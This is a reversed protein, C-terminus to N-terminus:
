QFLERWSIQRPNGRFRGFMLEAQPNENFGTATGSWNYQLWPSAQYEIRWSGPVLSPQAWLAGAPLVGQQLPAAGGAFSLAPNSLSALQAAALVSCSDQQNVLFRSGDWYESRLVLPLPEEEPGAGNQLLLRGYRIDTLGLLRASCNGAAVCDGSSAVNVDANAIAVADNDIVQAALALQSFPGDPAPTSARNLQLSNTQYLLSGNLWSPSVTGSLRATLPQGNNNHEAQLLVTGSAFAGTYNQTPQGQLNRATLNFAVGFPQGQYSFSACAPTVAANSLQFDAPYFRGTASSNAGPVPDTMGLYTFSNTSFRFVGVESVSQTLSTQAQLQRNHNYSTTIVSGSAGTVPALLQHSLGINNQSFNPTPPNACLDSSGAQWARASINLTFTDGARRFPGCSADAAACEGSTQICLGAPRRIFQDAGNMVLGADNNAASGTYRANLQVLGADAYNVSFNAQGQANFSLLQSQRDAESLGAEVSNVTVPWSVPRGNNDPTIYSSWFAVNRSVNAFAPVCQQSANDKRVASLLINSDPRNAIGDPVTFVLGSDAFSVSCAAASLAGGGSRCLTQSLPRTSPISGSVGVTTSGVMTRALSATTSGGAFSIVNGGLWNVNASNVPSLTATVQQTVLESCSPNKCARITFTEPKCTLAQGSYDFEFHDIQEGVPLSRLACISLNDLEHNNNSGGTSGTFSLFFNEPVPAQGNFALANFPAVLNSFGSGTNRQVSVLAQGAVRSDVTIRYRHGPAATTTSRVDIRPNLNAATGTLYQYNGAASGRISVSQPRFGPGGLRGETPNSFNGYEDLAIGLWGGAFGADGNNRQAYGLSGGFSGPQPTVTADSLIVAVGDAGTGGQSSWAYYDFEVVVLNNAAPYLRQYTASTSQNAVAQTLRLRGDIVAPTFTGSSRATVWSDSLSGTSFNDTLCQSCQSIRSSGTFNNGALQNQYIQGVQGASLAQSFLLVEDIDGRFDDSLSGNARWWAAVAVRVVNLSTNSATRCRVLRDNIYLCLQDARRTLVVQTWSNNAVVSSTSGGTFDYYAGKIGARVENAANIYLELETDTTNNSASFIERFGTSNDLRFWLALSFNGLGNIAAAPVSIYDGGAASFDAAELVRGDSVAGVNIATAPYNGTLDAIVSNNQASCLDLPYHARATPLPAVAQDCVVGGQLLAVANAAYNVSAGFNSLAGRATIAGNVVSNNYLQVAGGALIFGNIEVNNNIVVNGSVVIILNQPPGGANLQVNNELTLNGNVFFRTTAGTSTRVAGNLITVSSNYYYDVPQMPEPLNPNTNAPFPIVAPDASNAREAQTWIDSCAIAAAQYSTLLLLAFLLTRLLM